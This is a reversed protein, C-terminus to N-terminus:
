RVLGARRGAAAAETRNEVGLKQLIRSVHVSATKPSMFLAEGIQRNTRGEALLELVALERDTLGTGAPRDVATPDRGALGAHALLERAERALPHAGLEEAISASEELVAVARSREGDRLLVSGLRCLARARHWRFGGDDWEGVARRWHSAADGGDLEVVEARTEEVLARARRARADPAGSRERVLAEMAALQTRAEDGTSLGRRAADADIAAASAHMAIQESYVQSSTLGQEIARRARDLDGTAAALTASAWWYVFAVQPDVQDLCGADVADLLRRAEDLEGRRLAITVSHHLTWTHTLRSDPRKMGRALELAEEWRGIEALTECLNSAIFFGYGAEQGYRRAIELGERGFRESEALDGAVQLGGTLNVYVRMVDAPSSVERAIRLADHLMEVGRDHLGGHLLLTGLTNLAHGETRRAGTEVAIRIAETLATLAEDSNMTLLLQQGLGALVEAREPTPPLAPVIAVARRYEALSDAAQGNSQLLRGLHAHLLARELDPEDAAEEIASRQYQVARPYDGARDALEAARVLLERHSTGLLGVPDDADDWMELADEVHRSAESFALVAESSRSAAESAVLAREFDRAERLHWALEAEAPGCCVSLRTDDALAQAFRAHARQRERPLLTTYVAEQMLAHRFRLAGDDGIVVVQHEVAERLAADIDRLDDDVVTALLEDRVSAGGVALLRLVEQTREGLKEIRSLILDSLEPRVARRGTALADLLEIAFFANGGSRDVLDDLVRTSPPEDLLDTALAGIEAADLPQLIMHEVRPSRDLEAVVGRLPHSRSMEDSRYTGVLTASSGALHHVLFVFLDRTSADAWHLDEVVICVPRIGALRVILRAVSDFLALQAAGDDVSVLGARGRRSWDPLLRAVEAHDDTIAMVAERDFQRCLATLAETIAVYPLTGHATPICGGVATAATTGDIRRGLEELLRTKGVGAEGGILLTTVDRRDGGVAALLSAVERRRGVFTARIASM